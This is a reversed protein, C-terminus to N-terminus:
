PCPATMFSIGFRYTTYYLNMKKLKEIGEVDVIHHDSNDM